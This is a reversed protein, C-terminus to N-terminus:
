FPALPQLESHDFAFVLLYSSRIGGKVKSDSVASPVGDVTNVVTGWLPFSLM